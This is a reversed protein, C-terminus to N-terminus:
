ATQTLLILVEVGEDAEEDYDEPKIVGSLTHKYYVSTYSVTMTGHMEVNSTIKNGGGEAIAGPTKPLGAWKIQKLSGPKYNKGTSAEKGSFSIDEEIDVDDVAEGMSTSAVTGETVELNYGGVNTYIRFVASSNFQFETKGGNDDANTEFNAFYEGDEGGELVAKFNISHTVKLGSEAM